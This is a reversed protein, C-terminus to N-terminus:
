RLRQFVLDDENAAVRTALERVERDSTRTEKRMLILAGDPDQRPM